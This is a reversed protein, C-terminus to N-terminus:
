AITDEKSVEDIHKGCTYCNVAGDHFDHPPCGEVKASQQLEKLCDACVPRILKDKIHLSVAEVKGCICCLFM